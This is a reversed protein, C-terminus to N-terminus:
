QKGSYCHRRSFLFFRGKQGPRKRDMYDGNEVVTSGSVTPWVPPSAASTGATASRYYHGNNSVQGGSDAPLVYVGVKYATNPRWKYRLNIQNLRNYDVVINEM